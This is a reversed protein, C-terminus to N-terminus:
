FIFVLKASSFVTFIISVAKSYIANKLDHKQKQLSNIKASKEIKMSGEVNKVTNMELLVTERQKKVVELKYLLNNLIETKRNKKDILM